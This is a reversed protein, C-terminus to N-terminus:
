LLVASFVSPLALGPLKIFENENWANNVLLFISPHNLITLGIAEDRQLCSCLYLKGNTVKNALPTNVSHYQAILLKVASESALIKLQSM